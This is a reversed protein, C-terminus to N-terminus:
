ITVEPEPRLAGFALPLKASWRRIAIAIHRFFNSFFSVNLSPYDRLPNIGNRLVLTKEPSCVGGVVESFSALNRTCVPGFRVWGAHEGVTGRAGLM